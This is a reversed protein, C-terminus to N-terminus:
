GIRRSCGVSVIGIDFADDAVFIEMVPSAVADSATVPELEREFFAQGNEAVLLETLIERRLRKFIVGDCRSRGLSDFADFVNAQQAGHLKGFVCARHRMRHARVAIYFDIVEVGDGNIFFTGLHHAHHLREGASFTKGFAHRKVKFAMIALSDGAIVECLANGVSVWTRRKGLVKVWEFTPIGLRACWPDFRRPYKIRGAFAVRECKALAAFRAYAM